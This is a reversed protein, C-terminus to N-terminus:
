NTLEPRDRFHDLAEPNALAEVNGAPRGHIADRVALETIKGSRTRPIDPVALIRAPVHRPTCAARIRDKVRAVLDDDLAAGEALRVFLVVRADGARDQGVAVSELIEPFTEAQRTIEAAGIRVGGPNLTSDSRGHIILGGHETTQAFDGHHWVGPFREFYTRRYRSGDPDNWFGVPMSPFPKVCVLEGRQGEIRRGADDWVEVAMGLGATQIEGRWVPATPDGLVFCSVIDTGGSISALHLDAKIADYVYDFSEAALPSGTSCLCRLDSLDRTDAPRLGQKRLSEIFRPSTGFLTIRERAAVDFLALGDPHSPSGDYLLITAQSALASVLWNWMMWGTTTFYFVRDDPKIDCHLLHEKRHQLLTGGQGHVICKPVGTTGSSYLIYLPHDFPLRAFAIGTAAFPALFADLSVADRLGDLPPAVRMNPVVVCRTVTPLRGLIRAVKELCDLKRGNYTYGDACILVKPDIQGFRDLTGQVGFDPSCSSWVAGLSNAALLGAVAEPLNPLYGAVRDGPGVGADGLAQALRSVLDHLQGWSLRRTAGDENRFVIADGADRRTLLNEAYSLRAGPFWRAGPMAGPSELDTEGWTEAAVNAFERLSTWFWEPRDISFAHLDGHTALDINWDDEVQEVFATLHATAIREASPSWLPREM